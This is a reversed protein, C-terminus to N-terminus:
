QYASVRVLLLLFTHYPVRCYLHKFEETCVVYGSINTPCHSLHVSM